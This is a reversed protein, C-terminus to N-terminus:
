IAVKEKTGPQPAAKLSRLLNRAKPAQLLCVTIVVLAKFVLTVEPPIGLTYVTTTLTQIIFAGVVTGALTYRGGALSTGGIVVALIADMEIYLGANNADAATVNSSIMLGALAACVASFVYVIWIINRSRLGALRSAVPNIGVAEILTGLAQYRARLPAHLTLPRNLWRRLQRSGMATVCSDIVALLTAEENGSLSADLELNRRTAADLILAETREEVHLARIHPL